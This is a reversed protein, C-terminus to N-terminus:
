FIAGAGTSVIVYISVKSAVVPDFGRLEPYFVSHNAQHKKNNKKFFLKLSLLDFSL